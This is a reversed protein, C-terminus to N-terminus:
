EMRISNFILCVEDIDLNDATLIYVYEGHECYASVFGDRYQSIIVNKGNVERIIQQEYEIDAILEQGNHIQMQDWTFINENENTYTVSLWHESVIRDIEYYGEPIYSLEMYQMSELEQDTFYSYAVSDKLITKVTEFFRVRRAEVSMTMVLLFSAACVLLVAAKKSLGCFARMWPHAERKILKKM